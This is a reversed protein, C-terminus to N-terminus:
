AVGVIAVPHIVSGEVIPFETETEVIEAALV